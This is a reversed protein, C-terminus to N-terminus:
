VSSEAGAPVGYVMTCDDCEYVDRDPRMEVIRGSLCGCEPCPDNIGIMPATM